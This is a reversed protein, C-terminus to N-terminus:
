EADGSRIISEYMTEPLSDGHPAKYENSHKVMLNSAEFVGDGQMSGEIVVGIGERFMAPQAGTYRVGVEGISDQVMFLLDLNEADWSVSGPKVQGGLRFPEDVIDPGRAVLESPTLFYVINEKLGGWVLMGVSAVVAVLGLGAWLMKSRSM